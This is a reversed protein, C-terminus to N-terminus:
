GQVDYRSEPEEEHEDHNCQVYLQMKTSYCQSEGQIEVLAFFIWVTITARKKCPENPDVAAVMTPPVIASIHDVLSYTKKAKVEGTMNLKKKQLRPSGIARKLKM